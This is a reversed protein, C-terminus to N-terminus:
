GGHKAQLAGVGGGNDGTEEDDEGIGLVDEQSENRLEEEEADEDLVSRVVGDEDGIADGLDLQNTGERGMDQSGSGAAM